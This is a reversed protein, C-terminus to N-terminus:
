IENKDSDFFRIAGGTSATSSDYFYKLLAKYTTAKKQGYLWRAGEQKFEGGNKYASPNGYTGAVYNAEFIAGGNSEMWVDKVANYDTTVKSNESVKEPYYKQQVNNVDYGEVPDKPVIIFHWTFTKIAIAQARRVVGDFEVGRLEGALVGLCYDHFDIEIIDKNAKRYRVKTTSTPVTRKNLVAYTSADDREQNENITGFMEGDYNIFYGNKRAGMVDIAMNYYESFQYGLEILRAPDEIPIMESIKWRGEEVVCTIFNYNIGTSFYRTDEYVEYDAGFVYVKTNTSSYEKHLMNQVDNLKVEVLEVLKAQKVNFIGVHNVENYSNEFFSRLEEKEEVCYLETFEEWNKNDIASIYKEIVEESSEQAYVRGSCMTIFLVTVMLVFLDKVMKRM